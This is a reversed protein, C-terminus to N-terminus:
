NLKGNKSYEKMLNILTNRNEDTLQLNVSPSVNMQKNKIFDSLIKYSAILKNKIENKENMRLDFYLDDLLSKDFQENKSLQEKFKGLREELNENQSLNFVSLVDTVNQSQINKNDELASSIYKKIDNTQNNSVGEFKEKKFETYCMYIAYVLFLLSAVLIFRKM